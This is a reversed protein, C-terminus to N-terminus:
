GYHLKLLILAFANFFGGLLGFFIRAARRGLLTDISTCDFFWDWDKIAGLIVFIGASVCLVVGLVPSGYGHMNVTM